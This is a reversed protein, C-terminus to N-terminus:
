GGSKKGWLGLIGIKPFELLHELYLGAAELERKLDASKFRNSRPHLLIHKTIFNRYRSPYIEERYYVGGPKFGRRLLSTNTAKGRARGKGKEEAPIAM